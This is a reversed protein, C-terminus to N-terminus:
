KTRRKSQQFQDLIARLQVLLTRHNIIIPM